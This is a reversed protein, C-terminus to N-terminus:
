PNAPVKPPAMWQIKWRRFRIPIVRDKEFSIHRTILKETIVAVVLKGDQSWTVQKLIGTAFKKAKADETLEIRKLQGIRAGVMVMVRYGKGDKTPAGMITFAEDPSVQGEVADSKLGNRRRVRRLATKQEAKTSASASGKTRQTDVDRVLFVTDTDDQEVKILYLDNSEDFALVSRRIVTDADSQAWVLGTTALLVTLVAGLVALRTAHKRM